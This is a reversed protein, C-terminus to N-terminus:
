MESARMVTEQVALEEDPTVSLPRSGRIAAALEEFDGVYRRYPFKEPARGDLSLQPPEIPRVVATGKTGLVEFSRHPSSNPQLTSATVIALARPYELVAVTNDAMNDAFNGHKRLFPAVKAPKGLLRVVLDILHSGQEFMQGGHFLAWDPRRDAGILTNMTAKVLYIDGLGGSRATELASRLAPNYRWMYGTQLLLNKRRALEVLRRFEEYNDAPPKELHIHKGAELALRAHGAHEKVASEVAIARISEDKLLRERDVLPVGAKEYGARAAPDPEWVGVLDWDGSERVVRAKEFAHSHSGGLFGIRIRGSSAALVGASSLFERRNVQM